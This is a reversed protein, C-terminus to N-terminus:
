KMRTGESRDTPQAKQTSLYADIAKPRPGNGDAEAKRGEQGKLTQGGWALHVTNTNATKKAKGEEPTPQTNTM